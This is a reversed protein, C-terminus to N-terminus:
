ATLPAAGDRYVRYKLIAEGRIQNDRVKKDYKIYYKGRVPESGCLWPCPSNKFYDKREWYCSGYPNERYYEQETRQWDELIAREQETLDRVGAAYVTLNEGDYDVLKASDFRLGSDQGDGNVLTIEVTNVKKVTRIGRCRAPIDDGTKGYRELLEFRIKGAAADRKLDALTLKKEM